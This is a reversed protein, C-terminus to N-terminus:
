LVFMEGDPVSTVTVLMEHLPLTGEHLKGLKGPRHFLDTVCSPM